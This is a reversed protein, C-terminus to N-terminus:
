KVDFKREVNGYKVICVRDNVHMVTVGDHTEDKALKLFKNIKDTSKGDIFIAQWRDFKDKMVGKFIMTEFFLQRFPETNEPMKDLLEEITTEKRINMQPVPVAETYQPSPAYYNHMELNAKRLFILVFIISGFIATKYWFNM